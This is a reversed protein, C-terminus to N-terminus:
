PIQPLIILCPDIEERSSNLDPTTLLRATMRDYVFIDREGVGARRESVFVIYRGDPSISPMQEHGVSNLGPLDVLKHSQRDYLYIDRAGKGEPRDSVFALWRGDGSLTPEIDRSTSNLGPLALEMKSVHDWLHIDAVGSESMNSVFAMLNGDVSLAPMREDHAPSNWIAPSQLQKGLIDFTLIDWRNSSGPRNWAAFALTGGSGSLVSHQQSNPSDNVIPLDIIQKSHMDWLLIRSTLNEV